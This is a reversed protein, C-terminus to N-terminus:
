RRLATSTTGRTRPVYEVNLDRAHLWGPTIGLQALYRRQPDAEDPDLWDDGIAIVDPRVADLALSSDEDGINVVAADVLRVSRIVELRQDLPQAPAHGKYRRIFEDRNVSVIVSGTPGALRRCAELLELHGVHLLDFTGGTYVIM